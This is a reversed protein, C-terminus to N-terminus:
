QQIRFMYNASFVHSLKEDPGLYFPSNGNCINVLYKPGNDVVPLTVGILGHLVNHVAYAYKRASLYTGGRSLIQIPVQAIDPMVVHSIGPTTEIVQVAEAPADTRVPGVFLNVGLKLVTKGTATENEIYQAVEKIM